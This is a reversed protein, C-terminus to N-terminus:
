ATTEFKVATRAGPDLGAALSATAMVRTATSVLTHSTVRMTTLACVVGTRYTNARKIQGVGVDCLAACTAHLPIIQLYIVNDICHTAQPEQVVPFV